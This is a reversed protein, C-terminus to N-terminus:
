KKVSGYDEIIDQVEVALRKGLEAISTSSDADNARSCVMSVHDGVLRQMQCKLFAMDFSSAMYGHVFIVLHVDEKDKNSQARSQWGSLSRESVTQGRDDTLELPDFEECYHEEFVVPAQGFNIDLLRLHYLDRQQRFDVDFRLLKAWKNREKIDFNRVELPKNFYKEFVIQKGLAERLKKEYDMEMYVLMYPYSLLWLDMFITYVEHIM